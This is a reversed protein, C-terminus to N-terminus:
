PLTCDYLADRSHLNHQCAGNVTDPFHQQFSISGTNVAIGLFEFLAVQLKLPAVAVLTFCIQHTEGSIDQSLRSNFFSFPVCTLWSVFGRGSVLIHCRCQPSVMTEDFGVTFEVEFSPALMFCISLVCTEHVACCHGRSMFM